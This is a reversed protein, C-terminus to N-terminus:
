SSSSSSSSCESCHNNCSLMRRVMHITDYQGISFSHLTKDADDYNMIKGHIVFYIAKKWEDFSLLVFGHAKARDYCNKYLEKVSGDLCIEITFTTGGLSKVFIQKEMKKQTRIQFLFNSFLFKNSHSTPVFSHQVILYFVIPVFNMSIRSGNKFIRNNSVKNVNKM